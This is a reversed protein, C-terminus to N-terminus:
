SFFHKIGDIGGRALSAVARVQKREDENMDAYKQAAMKLGYILTGTPIVINLGPM